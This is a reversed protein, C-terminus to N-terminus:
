YVIAFSGDPRAIAASLGWVPVGPAHGPAGLPRGTADFVQWAVSGGRQWATGESWSMLVEGRTNIALSPHRRNTATGPPVVIAPSTMDTQIRAFRVHGGTEWAALVAEHGAVLEYTSMPCAGVNWSEMRVAQFTRGADASALLYSDRNVVERASRYLFFLEGKSTVLGDM